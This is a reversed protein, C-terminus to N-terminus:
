PHVLSEDIMYRIGKETLFNWGSIRKAHGIKIAHDRISKSILDGDWTVGNFLQALVEHYNNEMSM